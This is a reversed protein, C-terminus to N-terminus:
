LWAIIRIAYQSNQTEIHHSKKVIWPEINFSKKKEISHNDTPSIERKEQKIIKLSLFCM